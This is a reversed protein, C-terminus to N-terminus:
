FSGGMAFDWQADEDGEQSDLNYGWILRLPGMPSLWNIGVGTSKKINSFDWDEDQDYVNGFDVFAVGRVGANTLLPFFIELNTFWMKDGGYKEDNNPDIPSISSSKFGRISNMGGLYFNDYVPLKGDENEFAQGAAIKTHFVLDLPMPFFWSTYGELKTYAAEGGLPGGAYKLSLSHKAGSSANFRRDRTDRVFSLRVASTINIKASELIYDSADESIDSLETDTWTYGYYIRWKEWFHHGLRLGGGTSGKTYDTYEREWNFADIGASIKSDFIRPDTYSLNFKNSVASLNAAFALRTGLGLFNDESIEGMFMLKDSSSYGAGISFQGTPKEKVAVMVDMQDNNMTEQPIVTIDEFYGLRQLRKTSTRIAKSDYVGGEEVALDRRIVNDRTRTNGQIKIRNFSVLEGQDIKFVINVRKGNTSKNVQPRIDAFAYGHEAYLDTLKRVDERLVQRNLFREKRVQLVDIMENRDKILDGQVEVTGVQYRPGEQITFTVYLDDGAEEVEPAGVKAEIFGQNNYFADLRAADQELIDLKLTGAETIWSSYWSWTATQIEDELEDASFSANGVFRIGSISMKGGENVIFQVDVSHEDPHDLAFKSRAGYYGKSRYLGNIRKVANSLQAPNLITNVQINAADSVDKEEVKDLGSFTITTVLPKEQVRFIVKKGETSDNVEIEVNDFYGMSFVQKLDKRLSDPSYNDGPKTSIKRLIAGSDIRNNGEPTISSIIFERNTYSLVDVLTSKMISHIEALSTGERYSSHPAEPKLLDIVQMDVSIHEGLMTLSGVTVYDMGANEAVKTLAATSPPWPGNYDLVQEAEFRSLMIFDKDRLAGELAVDVRQGISEGNEANIKLPLFVTNQAIKQEMASATCAAFLLLIPLLLATVFRSLPMVQKVTSQTQPPHSM